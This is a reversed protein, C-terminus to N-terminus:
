IGLLTDRASEAELIENQLKLIDLERQLKIAGSDRDADVIKGAAGVASAFTASAKEAQAETIYDFSELNGTSGFTATLVNDDFMGNELPLTTYIGAQPLLYSKRHIINTKEECSSLKCISLTASRPQRYVFSESKKALTSSSKAILNKSINITAKANLETAIDLIAKSLSSNTAVNHYINSADEALQNKIKAEAKKIKKIEADDSQSAEKLLHAEDEKLQIIYKKLDILPQVQSLDFWKLFISTPVQLQKNWEGNVDFAPVSAYLKKHTLHSAYKALETKKNNLKLEESPRNNPGYSPLEKKLIKIKESLTDYHVIAKRTEDNCFENRIRIGMFNVGVSPIGMVMRAIQIAGKTANLIVAGTRDSINGKIKKITGNEYIEINLTTKKFPSNLNDYKFLYPNTTDSIFKPTVDAEVSFVVNAVDGVANVVCKKLQRKVVIDLKATPLAVRLLYGM